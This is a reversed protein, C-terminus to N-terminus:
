MPEEEYVLPELVKNLRPCAPYIPLDTQELLSQVAAWDPVAETGFHVTLIKTSAFTALVEETDDIMVSAGLLHCVHVKTAKDKVFVLRDFLPRGQRQNAHRQLSTKLEGPAM